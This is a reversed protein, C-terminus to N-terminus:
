AVGIVKGACKVSDGESFYIDEYEPNISVLHDGGNVKIFGSGNIIYIGTEGINVAQQERVLVTQGDSYIPEMSDGTIKIAFDARRAEPTDPIDIEEWADHDDLDFGHGASVMYTSRKIKVTPTNLEKEQSATCRALEIEMLGRIASKGYEDLNDYDKAIRMAESSYLPAKTKICDQFLFNADVKLANILAYMIPEKPHSTEKEYNTIASGTVGILKGLEEQTLGARERAEKIRKGIGM